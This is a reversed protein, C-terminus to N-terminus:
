DPAQLIRIVEEQEARSMSRIDSPTLGVRRLDEDTANKLGFMRVRRRADSVYRQAFMAMLGRIQPGYEPDELYRSLGLAIDEEPIGLNLARGVAQIFFYASVFQDVDLAEDPISPIDLSKIYDMSAGADLLKQVLLQRYEASEGFQTDFQQKLLTNRRLIEGAAKFDDEVAFSFGTLASAVAVSWRGQQREGGAIPAALREIVGLQPFIGRLTETLARSVIKEGTRPDTRQVAWAMWRPAPETQGPMIAPDGRSFGQYAGSVTALAPNMMGFLERPNVLTSAVRGVSSGTFAGPVRFMRNIDVAPEGWMMGLTVPGTPKLIDPLNEFASQPIAFGFREAVYSAYPYTGESDNSFIYALSQQLKIANTIRSPDHILARFQMPINYRMWTYFPFLLKLYDREFASLDAYDFHTAKVFLSAAYGGDRTGIERASRIYAAFRMFDESMEAYGSVFNVWPNDIAMRLVTDLTSLEEELVFFSGRNTDVKLYDSAKRGPERQLRIGGTRGMASSSDLIEGMVRSTRRRGDLGNKHFKDWLDIIADADQQGPIISDRGTFQARISKEFDEKMLRAAELPQSDFNAGLQRRAQRLSKAAQIVVASAPLTDKASVGNLYGLWLGGMINRHVFGVGRFLTMGVKQVAYFPKYVNEIFDRFANNPAQKVEYLRGITEMLKKPGYDSSLAEAIRGRVQISALYADRAGTDLSVGTIDSFNQRQAWGIMEVPIKEEVSSVAGYRAVPRGARSMEALGEARGFRQAITYLYEVAEQIMKHEEALNSAQALRQPSVLYQAIDPIESLIKKTSDIALRQMDSVYAIFRTQYQLGYERRMFEAAQMRDSFAGGDPRRIETPNRGRGVKVVWGKSGEVEGPLVAVPEIYSNDLPNYYRTYGKTAQWDARKWLGMASVTSEDMVLRYGTADEYSVLQRYMVSNNPLTYPEQFRVTDRLIDLLTRARDFFDAPQESLGPITYQELLKRYEELRPETMKGARGTHRPSVLETVRGWLETIDFDRMEVRPLDVFLGARHLENTIRYDRMASRVEAIYMPLFKTPDEVYLPGMIERSQPTGLLYRNADTETLWRLVRAGDEETVYWEGAFASRTKSIDPVGSTARFASGTQAARVAGYRAETMRPVHNRLFNMAVEADGFIEITEKGIDNFLDRWVRATGIASQVIQANEVSGAYALLSSNKLADEARRLEAENHFLIDFQKRFNEGWTKMGANFNYQGQMYDKTIRDDFVIGAREAADFAKEFQRYDAFTVSGDRALRGRAAGIAEVYLEGARGHMKGLLRGTKSGVWARAGESLNTLNSIIPFKRSLEGAGIGKIAWAKPSGNADRYFPLRFRVGGKMDQTLSQFWAEGAQGFQRNAWERMHKSGRSAYMLGAAEPATEMAVMGLYNVSKQQGVRNAVDIIASLPDDANLAYALDDLANQPLITDTNKAVEKIQSQLRGVLIREDIVNEDIAEKFFRTYNFDGNRAATRMANEIGTDATSLFKAAYRRGLISGGFSVYTLPDMVIDLGFGFTAALSRKWISADKEAAASSLKGFDRFTFYEDGAFAEGARRLGAQFRTEGERIVNAEVSRRENEVRDMGLLGTTFGTIMSQPRTLYDFTKQILGQPSETEYGGGFAEASALRREYTPMYSMARVTEEPAGALAAVVADSKNQLGVPTRNRNNRSQMFALLSPSSGQLNGPSITNPRVRGPQINGPTISSM